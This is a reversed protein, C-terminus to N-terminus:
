SSTMLMIFRNGEEHCPGLRRSNPPFVTPSDCAAISFNRSPPRPCALRRTQAQRPNLRKSPELKPVSLALNEPAHGRRNQARDRTWSQISCGACTTRSGRTSSPMLRSRLSPQGCLLPQQRATSRARRLWKSSQRLVQGSPSDRLGAIDGIEARTHHLIM